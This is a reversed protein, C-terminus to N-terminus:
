RRHVLAYRGSGVEQIVKSLLLMLVARQVRPASLGTHACLEDASMVDQMLAQVVGREDEDLAPNKQPKKPRGSSKRTPTEGSPAALSLVDASSRCVRAGAALLTLCGAGLPEWPGFPVAMLPRGLKRAHAATSMAGSQNPAQGVIVVRALAAIIRNRALPRVRPLMPEVLREAILAGHEAIEEFLAHNCVPKRDDLLWPLVAVTKGNAELAGEHAATDIGVAGGSVITCGEEALERALSRTFQLARPDARRTGVIAVARTLDPLEGEIELGLPPDALDRLCDPLELTRM